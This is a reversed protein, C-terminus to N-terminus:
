LSKHTAVQYMSLFCAIAAVYCLWRVPVSRARRLALTGLVIYAVLLLFKARLWPTVLPNLDLTVLLLVAATLLGTDIVVSSRRVSAANPWRAGALAALGRLAFLSGSLLVLGVHAQKLPLYWDVLAM